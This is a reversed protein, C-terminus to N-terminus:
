SSSSEERGRNEGNNEHHKKRKLLMRPITDNERTSWAASTLIESGLSVFRGVEGDGLSVDCNKPDEISFYQRCASPRYEYPFCAGNELFVCPQDEKPQDHWEKDKYKAQREVKDWDIDGVVRMLLDAEDDTIRVVQHCCFHCGKKCSIQDSIKKNAEIHEKLRRDIEAHISGARDCPSNPHDKNMRELTEIEEGIRQQIAIRDKESTEPNHLVKGIIESIYVPITRTRVL